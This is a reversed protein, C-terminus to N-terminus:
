TRLHFLLDYVHRTQFNSALCSVTRVCTRTKDVLVQKEPEVMWAVQRNLVSSCSVEVSQRGVSLRCDTTSSFHSQFRHCLFGVCLCCFAYFDQMQKSIAREYDTIKLPDTFSSPQLCDATQRGLPPSSSKVM